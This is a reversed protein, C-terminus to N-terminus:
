SLDFSPNSSHFSTSCLYFVIFIFKITLEYRGYLM